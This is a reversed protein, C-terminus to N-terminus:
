GFIEVLAVVTAAVFFLAAAILTVIKWDLIGPSPRPERYVPLAAVAATRTPEPRIPPAIPSANVGGWHPEHPIEPAPLVQPPPEFVFPQPSVSEDPARPPAAKPGFIFTDLGPASKAGALEPLPEDHYDSPVFEPDAREEGYARRFETTLQGPQVSIGGSPPVSPAGVGGQGKNSSEPGPMMPALPAPVIGLQRLQGTLGMSMEPASTSQRRTSQREIWSQLYEGEPLPETVFYSASDEQGYKLIKKRAEDPLGILLQCIRNAQESKGAPFLHIQIIKGSARERGSSVFIGEIQTLESFDYSGSLKM